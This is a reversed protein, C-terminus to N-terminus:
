APDGAGAEAGLGFTDLLGTIELVRRVPPTPALIVVSGGAEDLRRHLRLLESIGSSDLFRLEAAEIELRETAGASDLAAGIADGVEGCNHSDVEGSVAARVVPGDVSVTVDM